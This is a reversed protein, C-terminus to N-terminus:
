YGLSFTREESFRVPRDPSRIPCSGVWRRTTMPRPYESSPVGGGGLAVPGCVGPLAEAFGPELWSRLRLCSGPRPACVRRQPRPAAGLASAPGPLGNQTTWCPGVRRSSVPTKFVPRPWCTVSPPIPSFPLESCGVLSRAWYSLGWGERGDRM